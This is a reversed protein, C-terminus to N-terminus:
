GNLMDLLNKNMKMLQKNNKINKKFQKKKTELNM